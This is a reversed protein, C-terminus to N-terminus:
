GRDGGKTLEPGGRAAGEDGADGPVGGTDQEPEPKPKPKPKPKEEPEEEEKKKEEEEPPQDPETPPTPTTPIEPETQIPPPQPRPKPKERCQEDVLTSLHEASEELTGRVDGNVDGPLAALRRDIRPLTDERLDNCAGAAVRRDVEQLDALLRNATRAPLPDGDGGCGPALALMVAAASLWRGRPRPLPPLSSRTM